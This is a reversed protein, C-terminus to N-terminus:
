LADMANKAVGLTANARVFALAKAMEGVKEWYLLDVLYTQNIDFGPTHRLNHAVFKYIQSEHIIYKVQNKENFIPIRTVALGVM